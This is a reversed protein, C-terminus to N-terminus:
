LQQSVSAEDALTPLSSTHRGYLGTAANRDGMTFLSMLRRCLNLLADVQDVRESEIRNSKMKIVTAVPSPLAFHSTRNLHRSCIDFSFGQLSVLFPAKKLVTRFSVDSCYLRHNYNILSSNRNLQCNRARKTSGRRSLLQWTPAVAMTSLLSLFNTPGLRTRHLLNSM